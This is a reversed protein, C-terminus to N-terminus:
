NFLATVKTLTIFLGYCLPLGVLAWAVTVKATEM